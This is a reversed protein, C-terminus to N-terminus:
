GARSFAVIGMLPAAGPRLGCGSGSVLVLGAGRPPRADEELRGATAAGAGHRGGDGDIATPGSAAGGTSASAAPAAAGRAGLRRRGLAPAARDPRSEQAARALRAAAPPASAAGLRPNAAATATPTAPPRATAAFVEDGGPLLRGTFRALMPLRAPLRVRNCSRAGVLRRYQDRGFATGPGHRRMVIRQRLRLMLGFRTATRVPLWRAMVGARDLSGSTVEDLQRDSLGAGALVEHNLVRAGGSAIAGMALEEHGPVGLKRVLFSRSRCASRQAVERAVPVGGRPLALVVADPRGAYHSLGGALRRGADIRDAFRESMSRLM